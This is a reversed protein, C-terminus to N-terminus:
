CVCMEGLLVVGFFFVLLLLIVFGVMVDVVVFNLLVINFCKWKMCYGIVRVLIKVNYVIIIVGFFMNLVCNVWVFLYSWVSYKCFEVFCIILIEDKDRCLVM